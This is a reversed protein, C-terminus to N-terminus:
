ASQPAKSKEAEPSRFSQFTKYALWFMLAALGVAFIWDEFGMLHPFQSNMRFGDSIATFGQWACFILLLVKAWLHGKNAFVVLIFGVGMILGAIALSVTAVASILAEQPIGQPLSGPMFDLQHFAATMLEGYEGTLISITTAIVVGAMWLLYVRIISM